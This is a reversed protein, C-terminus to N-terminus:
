ITLRGRVSPTLAPRLSTSSCFRLSWLSRARWAVRKQMGGSIDSPMKDLNGEMGVEALLENVRTARESESM